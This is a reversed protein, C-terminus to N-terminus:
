TTKFKAIERLIFDFRNGVLITKRSTQSLEIQVFGMGKIKDLVDMSIQRNGQFVPFIIVVVGGKKLVQKFELFADIYLRELSQKNKNIEEFSARQHLTPGLYPETVIADMSNKEFNRSLTRVDKQTIQIDNIDLGFRESVWKINTKTYEIAKESSDTGFLKKFGLFLAEQLMTGSGCFPDLITADPKVGSLNIMMRALKPPMTGSKMDREPRGFDRKSFEEFEQVALTQGVYIKSKGVIILIEAGKEVLKNKSVAASSLFREMSQPFHAKIGKQEFWNKITKTTEFKQKVLSDIIQRSGDLNYISIGFEIKGSKGKALNGLVNESLIEAYNDSVNKEELLEGIKITGGLTKNIELVNAKNLINVIAVERSSEQIEYQINKLSLVSKIEAMSLEATRGLIFILKM